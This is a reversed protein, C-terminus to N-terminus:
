FIRKACGLIQFVGRVVSKPVDQEDFDPNAPILRLYDDGKASKRVYKITRYEDTVIAYVEGYLLYTNWDEIRKLAIMDGHNILPEMSRGTVNVWCEAKAYQQFHIYYTPDTTQDNEVTDMGGIFDVDYYPVGGVGDSVDNQKESVKYREGGHINHVNGINTNRGGSIITGGNMQGVVGNNSGSISINNAGRQIVSGSKLMPGNGTLLWDPSIGPYKAIFKAVIDETIGTNAELTGRSVGIQSYFDRKSVNLTEVFQLIREKIPSINQRKKQM